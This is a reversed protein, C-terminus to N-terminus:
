LFFGDIANKLAWFPVNHSVIQEKTDWVFMESVTNEEKLSTANNGSLILEQKIRIM